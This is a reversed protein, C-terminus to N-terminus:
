MCAENYSNAGGHHISCVVKRSELVALPEATIWKVIRVRDVAIEEKLITFLESSQDELKWTKTPKVKWLVQLGPLSTKCKSLVIKLAKAFETTQPEDWEFLSGLNVYITPSDALWNDLEPDSRSLPDVAAVIPGCQHIHEPLPGLPFDLDVSAGVYVRLNDPVNRIFDVPTKLEMGTEKKLYDAM